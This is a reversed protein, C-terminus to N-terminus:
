FTAPVNRWYARANLYIDFTTEGCVSKQTVLRRTVELTLM